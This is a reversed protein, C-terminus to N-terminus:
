KRNNQETQKLEKQQEDVLLQQEEQTMVTGDPKIWPEAMKKWLTYKKVLFALETERAREDADKRRQREEIKEQQALNKDGSMEKMEEEEVPLEHRKFYLDFAKVVEYYNARPDEMMLAWVPKKRYIREPYKQKAKQQAGAAAAVLLMFLVCFFSKFIAIRM